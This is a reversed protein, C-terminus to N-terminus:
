IKQGWSILRWSTGMHCEGRTGGGADGGGRELHSAKREANHLKWYLPRSEESASMMWM